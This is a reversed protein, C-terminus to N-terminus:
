KTAATDGSSESTKEEGYYDAEKKLLNEVESKIDCDEHDIRIEHADVDGIWKRTQINAM